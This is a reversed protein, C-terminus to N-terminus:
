IEEVFIPEDLISLRKKPDLRTRIEVFPRNVPGFIWTVEGIPKKRKDIIQSGMEPLRPFRGIINGENTVSTIEGKNLM